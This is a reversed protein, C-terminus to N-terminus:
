LGTVVIDFTGMPKLSPRVIAAGAIALDVMGEDEKDLDAIIDGGSRGADHRYLECAVLM